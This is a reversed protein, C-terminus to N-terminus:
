LNGLEIDCLATVAEWIRQEIPQVAVSASSNVDFPSCFYKSQQPIRQPLYNEKVSKSSSLSLSTNYMEEAEENMTRRADKFSKVDVIELKSSSM